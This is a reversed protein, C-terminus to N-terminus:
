GKIKLLETNGIRHVPAIRDRYKILFGKLYVSTNDWAESVIIYRINNALVAQWIVDPDRSFPYVISQHGTYLYTVTPKRSIIAEKDKVQSAIWANMDLFNRAPPYDTIYSWLKLYRERPAFWLVCILQVALVL